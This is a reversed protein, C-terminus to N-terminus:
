LKELEKKRPLKQLLPITIMVACYISFNKDQQEECFIFGIENQQLAKWVNM